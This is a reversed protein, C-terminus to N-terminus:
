EMVQLMMEHWIHQTCIEIQITKCTKRGIKYINSHHYKLFYPTEKISCTDKVWM